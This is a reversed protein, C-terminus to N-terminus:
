EEPFMDGMANDSFQVNEMELQSDPDAAIGHGSGRAIRSNSIHMSAGGEVGLNASRWGRSMYVLNGNGAHSIETHELRNNTHASKILIGRWNRNGDRSYSSFVIPEGASGVANLTGQNEVEMRVEEGFALQAGPAISLDSAVKLDGIFYYRAEGSLKRWQPNDEDDFSADNNFTSAYV